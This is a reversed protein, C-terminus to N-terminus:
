CALKKLVMGYFFSSSVFWYIGFLLYIILAGAGILARAVEEHGLRVVAHLPTDGDKDRADINAGLVLEKENNM